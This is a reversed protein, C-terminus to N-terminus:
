LRRADAAVPNSQANPLKINTKAAGAREQRSSAEGHIRSPRQEERLAGLVQVLFASGM